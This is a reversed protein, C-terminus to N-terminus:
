AFKEVAAAAIVMLDHDGAGAGAAAVILEDVCGRIGDDDIRGTLKGVRRAVSSAPHGDLMAQEVPRHVERAKMLALHADKQGKTVATGFRVFSGVGGFGEGEYGRQLDFQWLLKGRVAAEAADLKEMMRLVEATVTAPLSAADLGALYRVSSMAAELAESANGFGACAQEM